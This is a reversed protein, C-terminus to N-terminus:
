NTDKLLTLIMPEKKTTGIITPAQEPKASRDPTTSRETPDM